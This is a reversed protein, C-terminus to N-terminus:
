FGPRRGPQWQSVGPVFAGRAQIPQGAAAETYTVILLRRHSLDHELLLRLFLGALTFTKGTGASAEILTPGLPLPTAPLDFLSSKM